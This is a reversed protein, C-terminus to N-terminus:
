GKASSNPEIARQPAIIEGDVIPSKLSLNVNVEMPKPDPRSDLGELYEILEQAESQRVEPEKSIGALGLGDLAAKLRATAPANEDRAIDVIVSLFDSVHAQAHRRVSQALFSHAESLETFIEIFVEEERWRYFTARSIGLAEAIENNTRPSDMDLIMEAMRRLEAERVIVQVESKETM